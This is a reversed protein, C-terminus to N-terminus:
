IKATKEQFKRSFVWGIDKGQQLRTWIGNSGRYDPICAATSIGAGTYVVLHESKVIAEVLVRCKGEIVDMPEEIEELRRKAEDRRHWRMKLDEVVESYESLIQQEELTREDESKQLIISVKAFVFGVLLM